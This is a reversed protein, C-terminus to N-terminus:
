NWSVATLGEVTEEPPGLPPCPDLRGCGGLAVPLPHTDARVWVLGERHEQRWFMSSHEFLFCLVIRVTVVSLKEGLGSHRKFRWSLSRLRRGRARWAGAVRGGRVRWACAVCAGGVRWARAVCAGRGPPPAGGPPGRGRLRCLALVSHHPGSPM